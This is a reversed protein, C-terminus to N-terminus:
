ICAAKSGALRKMQGIGYGLSTRWAEELSENWAEGETRRAARVVAELFDDYDQPRVGMETHQRGYDEVTRLTAATGERAEFLLVLAGRLRRHQQEFRTGRSEFILRLDPRLAFLNDYLSAFFGEDEVCRDFSARALSWRPDAGEMAEWVAQRADEISPWRRGPDPDLMRALVDRFQPTDPLRPQALVVRQPDAFLAQKKQFDALVTIRAPPEGTLLEYLLQGLQYQDTRDDMEGGQYQEPTLYTLERFTVAADGGRHSTGRRWHVSLVARGCPDATDLLVNSPRIAGHCMGREHFLTLASAVQDFYRLAEAPELAGDRLLLKDLSSGEICEMVVYYPSSQLQSTLVQAIHPHRLGAAIKASEVFESALHAEYRAHVLVKIAVDRRLATDQARFVVSSRGSGLCDLIQYKPDLTRRVESKAFEELSEPEACCVKLRRGIVENLGRFAEKRDKDEMSGIPRDAPLAWHIETLEEFERPLHPDIADVPVVFCTLKGLRYNTLITRLESAAFRDKDLYHTSLFVVAARARKLKDEIATRWADGAQLNRSDCFLEFGCSEAANRLHPTADAVYEADSHSYSVFLVPDAAVAPRDDRHSPEL